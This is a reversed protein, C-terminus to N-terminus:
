EGIYLIIGYLFAVLFLMLLWFSFIGKAFLIFVIIVRNNNHRTKEM